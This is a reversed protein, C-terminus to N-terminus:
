NCPDIWPKGNIWNLRDECIAKLIDPYLEHEIKLVKEALVDASDEPFVNVTEQAIIQGGDYIRNVFHVTVGTKKVGSQIVKKHVNMGYCGKGGFSPLLAPHINIIRNEFRTVVQEPILKMYGALGVLDVRHDELLRLIKEPFGPMKTDMAYSPIDRSRAFQLGKAQPNDTMFMCIIAPIQGADIQGFIARFNSGKGSAFVALRKM